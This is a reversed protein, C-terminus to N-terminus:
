GKQAERARAEAIANAQRAAAADDELRLQRLEDATLERGEQTARQAMQTFRQGAAFANLAAELALLVTPSSM